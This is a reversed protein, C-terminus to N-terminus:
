DVDKSLEREIEDLDNQTLMLITILGEVAKLSLDCPAAM